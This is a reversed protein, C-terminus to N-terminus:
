ANSTLLAFVHVRVSDFCIHAGVKTRIHEFNVGLEELLPPEDEYGETGFAALWGMRLGGQEGMRGSVADAGGGFGASGGFSAGGSGLPPYASSSSSGGYGGYSVQAPTTHGSVSSYLSPYFQLNQASPQQPPVGYPQHQQQQYFGAMTAKATLNGRIGLLAPPPRPLLPRLLYNETACLTSPSLQLIFLYFGRTIRQGLQLITTATM